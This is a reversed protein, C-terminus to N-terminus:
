PKSEPPVSKLRRRKGRAEAEAEAMRAAEEIAPWALDRFSGLAKGIAEALTRGVQAIGGVRCEFTYGDEISYKSTCPGASWDIPFTVSSPVEGRLELASPPVDPKSM